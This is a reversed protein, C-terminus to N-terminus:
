SNAYLTAMGLACYVKEGRNNMKVLSGKAQGETCHILIDSLLPTTSKKEEQEIVTQM